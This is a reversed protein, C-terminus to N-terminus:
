STYLRQWNEGKIV